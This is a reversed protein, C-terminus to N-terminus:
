ILSIPNSAEKLQEKKVTFMVAILTLTLLGDVSLGLQGPIYRNLGIIFFCAGIYSYLGWIPKTLVVYIFALALPLGTLIFLASLELQKVTLGLVASIVLLLIIRVALRASAGPDVSGSLGM